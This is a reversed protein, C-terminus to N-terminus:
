VIFVLGYFFCVKNMVLADEIDYGSYSMVAVTAAQGAPLKDFGILEITRTKVLPQQPYVMLYLMTDMREYENYAVAGMAQKGMACQYTNRPSQNHHPFPILGAVAGLLTFPAIELHTTNLQELHIRQENDFGSTKEWVIADEYVAIMSDCEENVDLYEIRGMQVLDEFTKVGDIVDKIDAETVQPIGNHVIVLPRCIRGNDSSVNICFHDNDCYIGVTANIRGARRMKRFGTVLKERNMCIGIIAGNLFVSWGGVVDIGQLCALEECGLAYLLAMIPEAATNMTIHSLLALNKVLGCAEGEPTDSPCVMGWQSSQLSRPGSVKRTKEFQSTIRTTMGLASVYSLRSLVQTVGSREMKFRKLSWNGSSLARSLGDTLIRSTGIVVTSADFQSTRNTKKLQMDVARKVNAQWTKFLDEFLLAMLNGSTEVRKNGVFDRDDTIGGKMIAKLVRRIMCSVYVAKAKFDLVGSHEEVPVNALITTALIDKAEESPSKKGVGFARQNMKVKTGIFELCQLQTALNLKLHDELTPSFSKIYATDTGCIMQTLESDSYPVM